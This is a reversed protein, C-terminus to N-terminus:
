CAVLSCLHNAILPISLLLFFSLFLFVYDETGIKTDVYTAKKIKSDFGRVELAEAIEVSRKIALVLTPILIPFYCRIKILPNKSHVRLGKSLQAEVVTSFEQAMISIFRFALSLSISVVTPLGLRELAVVFDDPETTLFFINISMLVVTFKIVPLASKAFDGVVVYNILFIVLLLPATLAVIKLAKLLVKGVLLYLIVLILALITAVLSEYLIVSILFMPIVILKCRPDLRFLVSDRREYRFIDAVKIM